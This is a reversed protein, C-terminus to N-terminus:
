PATQSLDYVLLLDQDRLFLRRGSVVPYPWANQGSRDPQEFRGLSRYSEPTAAVLTVPGNESRCILKGDVWTISCKGPERSRWRTKGTELELCALMGPDDAGYAFGDVVIVGGHHNKLEKTFYLEEAAFKAGSRSVRVAGGGNGYGSAALVIDGAIVPTSCNATGNAPRDYQWLVSGDKASVGLVGGATFQVYQKLGAIEGVVPSSYGAMEGAASTWITKGNQKNLAVVTARPGGPTCIVWPGDVLVSEAYGWNGPQGAFDAVLDKRWVIRGNKDDIAVLDGALGLAYVRNGDVTPSSRPGAYGGGGARVKGLNSAWILQGQKKADLCYVFENGDKNGMCYVRDGVVTPTSYGEGVGTTRWMLRPGGEPWSALLDKESSRGDRNAGRWSPWDEARAAVSCAL